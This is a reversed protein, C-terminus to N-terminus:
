AFLPTGSPKSAETEKERRVASLDALDLVTRIANSLRDTAEGADFTGDKDRWAVVGDPRVLLAGAEEIERIRQWECYLDQTESSGTVVIRLFPLDLRQVADKWATGALGTVVTFLGKGTVDLTSVRVGDAGVLWAHPIKAGPRSTPQNYLDRDRRWKELEAGDDPIVASSEYRQNMEVGQANYETQKLDLAAQAAKRAAVGEPGPDRFRAIGAAVPNEAGQVRFCANLPAYDLRSQNARLVIQKGVPVREQSYSELLKPGAWGKVAYALKWSLNHGDQVCTNNGLGSSPPHRHVADGGCLVRGKSYQTVYAQNVYWISTRVIDIDVSPDGILVRIKPLIVDPTLDPEGKSIDFGWGAIWQTWPRVARLLGMGIEGFSADPTVIWNLISPRHNSYRSLDANFVTYVTGARAMQGEIPLGLHDVVMSRAGDAGVMYKTRVTYEHGDLRDRLTTTVGDDDQEHSVYETNFAFTAGQDAAKQFLIPELLPQIIDVMGCPSARLYDGRRDDGTGWTRMRILEQGALSTSFTTDGMQEWPSAYRAVDDSIGLDRFVENARQNTIHARPSDAMWNGRSVIHSRVGCNALALATTSGTPGAGIILVDTEYAM